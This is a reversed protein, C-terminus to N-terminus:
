SFLKHRKRRGVVDIHFNQRSPVWESVNRPRTKLFLPPPVTEPFESTKNRVFPPLDIPTGAGRPGLGPEMRLKPDTGDLPTPDPTLRGFAIPKRWRARM